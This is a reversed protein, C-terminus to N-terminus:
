PLTQSYAELSTNVQLWPFHAIKKVKQKIKWLGFTIIRDQLNSCNRWSNEGKIAGDYILPVSEM